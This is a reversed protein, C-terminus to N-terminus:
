RKTIFSLDVTGFNVILALNLNELSEVLWLIDNVVQSEYHNFLISFRKELHPKAKRSLLAIKLLLGTTQRSGINSILDIFLLHEPQKPSEVLFSFLQCCTRVLLLDDVKQSNFQPFTNKIQKYLRENFQHRGYEPEISTILYEYLDDKFTLYSQTTCSHTLFCQALERYTYSGEVKGVFQKLALFLERDSLLTPNRVPQIIQAASTSSTQRSIQVRRVLYTAYQSLNIEFQRQRQAQLQRITQQEESSSGEGLLYHTYLYPYRNILKALPRNSAQNNATNAAPAKEGGPFLGKLRQLALYEESQTFIQVLEQLRKNTSKSSPSKFLAVLDAIAVQHKPHRRWSNVLIHCCRNLIHKFQQEALKSATIRSLAQAIEPDPYGIGDIFLHRFREILQTPSERKVCYILHNYLIQEELSPDEVRPPTSPELEALIKNVWSHDFVAQYLRNYVQLKGDRKVVLGSLRLEMQEPTDKAAVEGRQLIQQYLRLLEVTPQESKLIHNREGCRCLRDRITRLHEPEDTAEWNEILHKRVLQELWEAIQFKSNEIFERSKHRREGSEQRVLKCLKQTLFPQGGTWALVERLVAQPNSVEGKLGQVLPQAEHLQFGCLEIARGLNFPANYQILDSPTAVGLMTFTLRQYETQDDRNNYCARITAFFDDVRFNLSLVSDIEDLFIVLNESILGLLVERIFESLRKVPALFTRECWWKGIDVKDLLNLSSALTYAIGAYWQEPTIDQSGIATLDVVACAIGESRLRQMTQVRLSSKGMQRSNLVYCFEGAKLANYLESDAQRVVYTPADVPLCGGVQYEYASNQVANMPHVKVPASVRRLILAQPTLIAVLPADM